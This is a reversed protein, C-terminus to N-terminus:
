MLVQLSYGSAMAILHRQIRGSGRVEPMAKGIVREELSCDLEVLPSEMQEEMFMENTEEQLGPKNTESFMVDRSHFVRRREPDFLRYGKTETGYGLFICKRARPDLKQREDKPIHAYAVCGFVRIAEPRDLSPLPTM